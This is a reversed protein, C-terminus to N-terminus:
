GSEKTNQKTEAVNNTNIVSHGNNPSPRTHAAEQGNNVATKSGIILKEVGFQDSVSTRAGQKDVPRTIHCSKNQTSMRMINIAALNM